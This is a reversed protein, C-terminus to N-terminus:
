KREKAFPMKLFEFKSAKYYIDFNLNELRWEIRGKFKGLPWTASFINPDVRTALQVHTVRGNKSQM